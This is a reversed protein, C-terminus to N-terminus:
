GNRFLKKLIKWIIGTEEPDWHALPTLILEALRAGMGENGVAEFELVPMVEPWLKRFLIMIRKRRIPSGIVVLRELSTTGVLGEVKVINGSTTRSTKELILRIDNRGLEQKIHTAAMDAEVMGPRTPGGSIILRDFGGKDYLEVGRRVREYLKPASGDPNPKHGLAVIAKM